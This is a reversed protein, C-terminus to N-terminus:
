KRGWLSTSIRTCDRHRLRAPEVLLVQERAHRAGYRVEAAERVRERVGVREAAREEVALRRVGDAADLEVLVEKSALLLVESGGEAM